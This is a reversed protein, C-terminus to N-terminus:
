ESAIVARGRRTKPPDNFGANRYDRELAQSCMRCRPQLGDPSKTLRNFCDIPKTRRCVRCRKTKM